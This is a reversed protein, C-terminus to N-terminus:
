WKTTKKGTFLTIHRHRHIEGVTLDMNHREGLARLRYLCGSQYYCQLCQVFGARGVCCLFKCFWLLGTEKWIQQHKFESQYLSYALFQNRFTKYQSGDPRPHSLFCMNICLLSQLWIWLWRCCTQNKIIYNEKNAIKPSKIKQEAWWTLMVGSLFASIYHHFVWWGKIRHCM